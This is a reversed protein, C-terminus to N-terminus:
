RYGMFLVAGKWRTLEDASYCAKAGGYRPGYM